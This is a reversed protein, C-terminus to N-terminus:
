VSKSKEKGTPRASLWAMGSLGRDVMVGAVKEGWFPNLMLGM